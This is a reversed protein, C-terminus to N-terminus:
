LAQESHFLPGYNDFLTNNLIIFMISLVSFSLCQLCRIISVPSAELNELWIM